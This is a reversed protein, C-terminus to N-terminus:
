KLTFQQTDTLIGSIAKDTAGAYVGFLEHWLEFVRAEGTQCWNLEVLSSILWRRTPMLQANKYQGVVSLEAV